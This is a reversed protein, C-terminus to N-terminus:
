EQHARPGMNIGPQPSYRGALRHGTSEGVEKASSHGPTSFGPLGLPHQGNFCGMNHPKPCTRLCISKVILASFRPETARPSPVGGPTPPWHSLPIPVLSAATILLLEIPSSTRRAPIGWHGLFVGLGWRSHDRGCLYSDPRPVCDPTAWLYFGSCRDPAVETVRALAPCGLITLTARQAGMYLM